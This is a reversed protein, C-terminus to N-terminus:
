IVNTKRILTWITVSPTWHGPGRQLCVFLFFFRLFFFDMYNRLAELSGGGETFLCVVFRLFTMARACISFFTVTLANKLIKEECFVRRTRHNKKNKTLKQSNKGRLICPEDGSWDVVTSFIQERCLFFITGHARSQRFVIARYSAYIFMSVCVCTCVCKCM